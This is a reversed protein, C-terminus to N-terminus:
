MCHSVLFWRTTSRRVGATTKDERPGRHQLSISGLAGFSGIPMPLRARTRHWMTRAHGLVRIKSITSTRQALLLAASISTQLSVRTRSIRTLTVIPAPFTPSRKVGHQPTRPPLPIRPLLPFILPSPHAHFSGPEFAMQEGNWLMSRSKDDAVVATAIYAGM